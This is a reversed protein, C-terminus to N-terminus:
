TTQRKPIILIQGAMRLVEWPSALWQGTLDNVLGGLGRQGRRIDADIGFAQQAWKPANWWRVQRAADKQLGGVGFMRFGKPMSHGADNSAKSVYKAIYGFAHRAVDRETHGHKWWQKNDWKPM